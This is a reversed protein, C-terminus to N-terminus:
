APAITTIFSPAAVADGSSSRSDTLSRSAQLISRSVPLLSVCLMRGKEMGRDGLECYERAKRTSTTFLVHTLHNDITIQQHQFHGVQARGAPPDNKRIAGEVQKADSM